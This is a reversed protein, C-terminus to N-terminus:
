KQRINAPAVTKVFIKDMLTKTNVRQVSNVIWSSARMRVRHARQEIVNDAMLRGKEVEMSPVIKVNQTLQINNTSNELQVPPVLMTPSKAGLNM